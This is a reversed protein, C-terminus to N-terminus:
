STYVLVMALVSIGSRGMHEVVRKEGGMLSKHVTVLSWTTCLLWLAQLRGLILTLLILTLLVKGCMTVGVVMVGHRVLQTELLQIIKGVFMPVTQLKHIRMQNEVEIKLEGYDVNPIFVGPFLDSIIGTFLPLDDALFKPVNGQLQGYFTIMIYKKKGSIYLRGTRATIIDFLYM